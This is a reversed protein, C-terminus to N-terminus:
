SISRNKLAIKTSKLHGWLFTRWNSIVFPILYFLLNKRIFKFSKIFFIFTSTNWILLDLIHNPFLSLRGQFYTRTSIFPFGGLIRLSELYLISINISKTDWFIAMAILLSPRLFHKMRWYFLTKNRLSFCIWMRRDKLRLRPSIFESLLLLLSCSIRRSIARLLGVFFRM